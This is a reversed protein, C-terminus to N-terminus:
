LDFNIIEKAYIIKLFFPSFFSACAVLYVKIPIEM